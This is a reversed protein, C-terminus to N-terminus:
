RTADIAERFRLPEMRTPCTDALRAPPRRADVPPCLSKLPCDDYPSTGVLARPHSSAM